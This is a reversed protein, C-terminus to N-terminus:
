RQATKKALTSINLSSAFKGSRKIRVMAGGPSFNAYIAVMQTQANVHSRSARFFYRSAKTKFAAYTFDEVYM